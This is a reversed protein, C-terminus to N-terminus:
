CVLYGSFYTKRSNVDNFINVNNAAGGVEVTVTATNSASMATLVSGTVTLSDLTTLVEYVKAPSISSLQYTGTTTVLNVIIDSNTAIVPQITITVNFQYNGSVPATFTTNATFNSAQDVILNAFQVTYITGTLGVVNNQANAYYAFCPQKTSRAIGYRLTNASENATTITSTNVFSNNAYNISGAGTLANAATSDVVNNQFNCNCNVGVDVAAGTGTQFVCNEITAGGTGVLTLGVGNFGATHFRSFYYNVSGTGSTTVSYDFHTTFCNFTDACTCVALASSSSNGIFSDSIELVGLTVAFFPNDGANGGICQDLNIQGVANNVHIATFDNAVINCDVFNMTANGTLEIAYNGNTKLQLGSFSCTGNGGLVIRGHIVVNGNVGDCTYAALSVGSLMTINEVYTGPLIFITDGARALAMAGMITTNTGNGANQDVILRATAMPNITITNTGATTTSIPTGSIQGIEGAIQINNPPVDTDLSPYVINGDNDTLSIIDQASGQSIQLWSATTIGSNGIYGTLIWEEGSTTNIWRKNVPFNVDNATPDRDALFTFFVDSQTTGNATTYLANNVPANSMNSTM